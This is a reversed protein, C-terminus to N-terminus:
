TQTQQAISRGLTRTSIQDQDTKGRGFTAILFEISFEIMRVPLFFSLLLLGALLHPFTPPFFFSSGTKHPVRPPNFLQPLSWCTPAFPRRLIQSAVARPTRCPIRPPWPSFLTLLGSWNGSTGSPNGFSEHVHLSPQPPRPAAPFGRSDEQPSPVRRFAFDGSVCGGANERFLSQGRTGETVKGRRASLTELGPFELSCLYRRM